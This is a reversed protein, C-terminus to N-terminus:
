TWNLKPSTIMEVVQSLEVRGASIHESGPFSVRVLHFWNLETSNLWLFSWLVGDSEVRSTSNLQILDPWLQCIVPLHSAPVTFLAKSKQSISSSASTWLQNKQYGIKLKDLINYPLNDLAIIKIIISVRNKNLFILSALVLSHIIDRAHSM